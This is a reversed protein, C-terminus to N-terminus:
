QADMEIQKLRAIMSEIRARAIEHKEVLRARESLWTQEKQCLKDHEVELRRYRQVLEDLRSEVQALLRESM